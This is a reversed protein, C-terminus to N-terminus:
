VPQYELGQGNAAVQSALLSELLIVFVVRLPTHWMGLTEPPSISAKCQM